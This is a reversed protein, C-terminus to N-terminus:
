LKELTKVFMELSEKKPADNIWERILPISLSQLTEKEIRLDDLLLDMTERTSRLLLGSTTVIKDCLAKEPGAILATQLKTLSIMRIGFAYYPLYIHTYSFRGAATRFQRGTKPTVSSIEYTKEPIFGWHALASEMSVYSPGYIHNALLFPAPGAVNLKPGPIYVGRKVPILIEHKILESIKDYPRKYDKLLDFLLQRTVPQEAYNRIEEKLDMIQLHLIEHLKDSIKRYILFFVM